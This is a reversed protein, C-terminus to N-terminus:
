EGLAEVGFDLHLGHHKGAVPLVVAVDQGHVAAREGQAKRRHREQARDSRHTEATDVVLPHRKRRHVLQFLAREIQDDGAAFVGHQHDFAKSTFHRFVLHGLRDEGSVAHDFFDAVHLFLEDGLDPDFFGFEGRGFVVAEVVPDALLEIVTQHGGLSGFAFLGPGIRNRGGLFDREGLDNGIRVGTDIVIGRDVGLSEALDPM